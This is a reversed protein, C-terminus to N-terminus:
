PAGPAPPPAMPAAMTATPSMVPGPPAMMPGTPMGYGMQSGPTMPAWGAPPVMQMQPPLYGPPYVPEPVAPTPPYLPEPVPVTPTQIMRPRAPMNKVPTGQNLESELAKAKKQAEELAKNASELEEMKRKRASEGALKQVEDEQAIRDKEAQEKQARM